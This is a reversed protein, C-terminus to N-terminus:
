QRVNSICPPSNIVGTRWGGLLGRSADFCEFYVERSAVGVFGFAAARVAHQSLPYTPPGADVDEQRTLGVLRDMGVLRVSIRDRQNNFILEGTIAIRLTSIGPVHLYRTAVYRDLATFEGIFIGAVTDMFFFVTGLRNLTSDDPTLFRTVPEITDLRIAHAAQEDLYNPLLGEVPEDPVVVPEGPFISSCSTLVLVALLPLLVYTRMM